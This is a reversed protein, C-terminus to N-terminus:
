PALSHRTTSHRSKSTPRLNRDSMGLTSCQSQRIQNGLVRLVSSGTDKRAKGHQIKEALISREDRSSCHSQWRCSPSPVAPASQPSQPTSNAAQQMPNAASPYGHSHMTAYCRPSEAIAASFSLQDRKSSVERQPMSIHSSRAGVATRQTRLGGDVAHIEM